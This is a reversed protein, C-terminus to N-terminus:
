AKSLGYLSCIRTEPFCGLERDGVCRETAWGVSPDDMKNVLVVLFKVGATKALM